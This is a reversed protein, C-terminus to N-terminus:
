TWKGLALDIDSMISVRIGKLGFTIQPYVTKRRRRLRQKGLSLFCKRLLTATFNPICNQPSNCCRFVIGLNSMGSFHLSPTEFWRYSSHKNFLSNLSEVFFLDIGRMVTRGHPSDMIVDDFLFMKRTVSGKHPSNVPWRHIERVFALSASSQHIRQNAVLCVISCAISVSTIQSAVTSMIVDQLRNTLQPNGECLGTIHLNHGHWSTIILRIHEWCEPSICQSIWWPGCLASECSSLIKHFTTGSFNPDCTWWYTSHM